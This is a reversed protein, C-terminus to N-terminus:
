AHDLVGPNTWSITVSPPHGEHRIVEYQPDTLIRETDLDKLLEAAYEMDCQKCAWRRQAKPYLELPNLCYLCRMESESM